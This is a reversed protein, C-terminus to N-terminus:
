QLINYVIHEYNNTFQMQQISHIIIINYLYNEPITNKSSLTM